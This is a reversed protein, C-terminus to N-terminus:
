KVEEVKILINKQKQKRRNTSISNKKSSNNYHQAAGGVPIWKGLQGKATTEVNQIDFIAVQNPSVHSFKSSIMLTVNDGRLRPLIYFGSEIDRYEVGDQVVVGDGTVFATQNPIPVSQGTSIFTSQGELVQVRFVNRDELRSRTEMQRYRVVNDESERAQIITGGYDADPSKIKVDRTSYGGSLGSQQINLNIDVDQKVSIMLRRPVSDIQALVQKIQKLNSPTTKVILKNSIGTVTGGKVVLPKLIPIVDGVQRNQMTITEIKMSEATLAPSNVIIFLLALHILIKL